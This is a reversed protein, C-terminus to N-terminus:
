DGAAKRGKGKVCPPSQSTALGLAKPKGEPPPTGRSPSAARPRAARKARETRGSAAPPPRRRLSTIPGGGAPLEAYTTRQQEAPSCLRARRALANLPNPPFRLGGFSRESGKERLFSSISTSRATDKLRLSKLVESSVATSPRIPRFLFSSINKIAAHTM